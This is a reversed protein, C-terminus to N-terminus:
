RRTLVIQVRWLTIGGALAAWVVPVWLGHLLWYVSGALGFTYALVAVRGRYSPAILTPLLVVLSGCILSGLALAFDTAFASWPAHCRGSVLHETPCLRESIEHIVLATILGIYWGVAAVPVTLLWRVIRM